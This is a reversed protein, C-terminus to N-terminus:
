VYSITMRVQALISEAQKLTQEKRKEEAIQKQALAILTDDTVAPAAQVPPSSVPSVIPPPSAIPSKALDFTDPALAISTIPAKPVAHPM